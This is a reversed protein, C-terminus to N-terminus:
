WLAVLCLPACKQWWCILVQPPVSRPFVAGADPTLFNRSIVCRGLLTTYMCPTLMYPESYCGPWRSNETCKETCKESIVACILAHAPGKPWDFFLPLSVHHWQIDTCFRYMASWILYHTAVLSRCKDNQVRLMSTPLCLSIWGGRGVAHPSRAKLGVVALDQEHPIDYCLTSHMIRVIHSWVEVNVTDEETDTCCWPDLLDTPTGSGVYTSCWQPCWELLLHVSSVM